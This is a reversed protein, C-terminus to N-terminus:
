VQCKISRERNQKHLKDVIQKNVAKILEIEAQTQAQAKAGGALYLKVKDRGSGLLRLAVAAFASGGHAAVSEVAKGAFKTLFNVNESSDDPM